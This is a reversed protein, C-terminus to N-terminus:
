RWITHEENDKYIKFCVGGWVKVKLSGVVFRTDESLMLPNKDNDFDESIYRNYIEESMHPYKYFAFISVILFIAMLWIPISLFCYSIALVVIFIGFTWICHLRQSYIKIAKNACKMEEETM